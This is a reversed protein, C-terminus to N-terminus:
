LQTKVYNSLDQLMRSTHQSTAGIMSAVEPIKGYEGEHVMDTIEASVLTIGQEGRLPSLPHMPSNVRVPLETVAGYMESNSAQYFRIRNDYLRIVELFNLVSVSNFKITEIPYGFSLGVSSQAALNYIEDPRHKALLRLISAQEWLDCLELVVKDIIGLYELCALQRNLDRVVGVVKYGKSLLLRALYAGDQGLIGTIIAVKM